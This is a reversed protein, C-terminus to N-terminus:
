LFGLVFRADLCVSIMAAGVKRYAFTTGQGGRQTFAVEAGAAQQSLVVDGGPGVLGAVTTVRKGKETQVEPNCRLRAATRLKCFGERRM